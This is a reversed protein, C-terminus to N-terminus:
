QMRWQLALRLRRGGLESGIAEEADSDFANDLAFTLDVPGLAQRLSLDLVTMPALWRDGTPISSDFRRGLHRLTATLDRRGGLPWQGTAAWQTRPRHRLTADGIPDRVRMWAGELQLRWDNAFRRGVRWEVGDAEIRARNVLQPPPGSDFDVLDEYRASFLTLRLPWTSDPATAYYMERHLAREPKLAANGVLPHGLAYFSPMKSSRAFSLGWQGHGDGLTRQLSLMPHTASDGSRANNGDERTREHRLGGQVTWDGRQWRLEAFASDSRRRLEFNAPLAFFGFDILSEFRGRERQHQLGVGLLWSEGLPMRWLAQLEDRRYETRSALAPLGFPDRLGPAVGPTTDDCDRARTAFQAEFVGAAPRFEGRLSLQQSDSRRVDLDRIVAYRAGGSDDAFGRNESHGFRLSAQLDLTESVDREWGANAARTRNFGGADDGDERQTAGIRWGGGSWGAHGARLGDGGFGAGLAGGSVDGSGARRTFIHILGAMADSNVVSANGRVIEIREIDDSTLTNLDVASGRSSLPDNQRVHDVLVVVHSPDAGRLYLSAFGGSRAGRDVVVGAQRALIDGVSVGRMADLEERRLVTVHQSAAAPTTPLASATIYIRDLSDASDSGTQAYAAPVIPALAYACVAIRISAMRMRVIRRRVISTDREWACARAAAQASDMSCGSWEM